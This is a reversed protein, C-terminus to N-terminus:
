YIRNQSGCTRGAGGKTRTDLALEAKLELALAVPIEKTQVAREDKNEVAPAVPEEKPKGVALKEKPQSAVQTDSKQSKNKFLAVQTRSGIAALDDKPESARAKTDDKPPVAGKTRSWIPKPV